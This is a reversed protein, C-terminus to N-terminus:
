LILFSPLFMGKPIVFMWRWFPPTPSVRYDNLRAFSWVILIGLALTSRWNWQSTLATLEWEPILMMISISSHVPLYLICLKNTFVLQHLYDMIKYHHLVNASLHLYKNYHQVDPDAPLFIYLSKSQFHVFRSLGDLSTGLLWQKATELSIKQANLNM